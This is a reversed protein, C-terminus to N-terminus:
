EFAVFMASLMAAVAGWLAVKIGLITNASVTAVTRRAARDDSEQPCATSLGRRTPTRSLEVADSGPIFRRHCASAVLAPRM